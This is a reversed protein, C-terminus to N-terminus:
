LYRLLLLLNNGRKRQHSCLMWSFCSLRQEEDELNGIKRLDLALNGLDMLDIWTSEWISEKLSRGFGFFPFPFFGGGSFISTGLGFLGAGGLLLPFTYTGNTFLIM